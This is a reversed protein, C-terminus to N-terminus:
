PQRKGSATVAFATLFVAELSFLVPWNCPNPGIVDAQSFVFAFKTTVRMERTGAYVPPFLAVLFAALLFLYHWNKAM